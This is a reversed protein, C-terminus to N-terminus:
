NLFQIRFIKRDLSYDGPGILFNSPFPLDSGFGVTSITFIFNIIIPVIVFSNWTSHISWSDFFHM